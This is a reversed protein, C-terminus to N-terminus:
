LVQSAGGLLGILGFLFAAPNRRLPLGGVLSVGMALLWVFFSLISLFAVLDSHGSQLAAVAFGASMALVLLTTVHWCFYAMLKAQQSLNETALLPKAVQPGGVFAHGLCTALSVGAAAWVLWTSM